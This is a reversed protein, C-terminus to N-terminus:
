DCPLIFGVDRSEIQKTILECLTEVEIYYELPKRDKYWYWKGIFNFFRNSNDHNGVIHCPRIIIYDKINKCIFEECELKQEALKRDWTTESSDIPLALFNIWAYSIYIYRKFSIYKFSNKFQTINQGSLDIVCDYDSYITLASCDEERDRNIKINCFTPYRGTNALMVEYTDQPLYKLLNKGILGSGGLILIRKLQEM